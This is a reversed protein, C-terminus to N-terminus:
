ALALMGIAFRKKRATKSTAAMVLSDRTMSLSTPRFRNTEALVDPLTAEAFFLVIADGCLYCSCLLMPVYAWISLGFRLGLYFRTKVNYDVLYHPEHWDAVPLRQESPGAYEGPLPIGFTGAWPTPAWARLSSSRWATRTCCSSRSRPSPRWTSRTARPWSSPRHRLRHRRRAPQVAHQRRRAPLSSQREVRRGDHLQKGQIINDYYWKVPGGDEIDAPIPPQLHRQLRHAGGDDVGAEARRLGDEHHHARAKEFRCSRRRHDRRRGDPNTDDGGAADRARPRRRRRRRRHDPHQDDLLRGFHGRRCEGPDHRGAPLHLLARARQGRAHQGGDEQHGDDDDSQTCAIKLDNYGAAKLQDNTIVEVCTGLAAFDTTRTATFFDDARYKALAMIQFYIAFGCLVASAAAFIIVVFRYM